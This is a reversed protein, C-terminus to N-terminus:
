YRYSFEDKEILNYLKDLDDKKNMDMKIFTGDPWVLLVLPITQVTYKEKIEGLKSAALLSRWPIQERKMLEKWESVTKEEDISVYTMNLKDNLDIYVKKLIPIQKHCPSCWSASFIILNYQTTDARVPEPLLTNWSPLMCNEFYTTTLYTHVKQGFYGAKKEPSFCNFVKEIDEKSQYFTLTSSLKAMLSQSDPYKKTLSIYQQLKSAYDEEMRYPTRDFMSYGYYMCSVSSLLERDESNKIIYIDQFITKLAVEKTRRNKYLIDPYINTKAYELTIHNSLRRAFLINGAGVTDDNQIEMFAISREISDNQMPFTLQMNYICDYISDPYCFAWTYGDKSNGEFYLKDMNKEKDVVMIELQPTSSDMIKDFHLELVNTKTNRGFSIGSCLFMLFLIFPKSYYNM